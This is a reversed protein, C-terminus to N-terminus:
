IYFVDSISPEVTDVKSAYVAHYVTVGNNYKSGMFHSSGVLSRETNYLCYSM